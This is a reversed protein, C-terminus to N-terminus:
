APTSACGSPPSSRGPVRLAASEALPVPTTSWRVITQGPVALQLNAADPPLAFVLTRGADPGSALPAIREEVALRGGVPSLLATAPSAPAAAAADHSQAPAAAVAQGAVSFCCIQALLALGALAVRGRVAPSVDKM